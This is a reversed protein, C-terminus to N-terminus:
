CAVMCQQQIGVLPDDMPYQMRHPHQRLHRYYLITLISQDHRHNTRDSGLPAICEHIQACYSWEEILKRIEPCIHFCIQTADRMMKENIMDDHQICFYELTRPHTWQRLTGCSVPTYLDIKNMIHFLDKLNNTVMSSADCWFLNGSDVEGAVQDIIVPKWAYYGKHPKLNFFSPYKSYNFSRFRIHHSPFMDHIIRMTPSDIGMDYVFIETFPIKQVILSSLFRILYQWNDQYAATVITLPPIKFKQLILLRNDVTNGICPIDMLHCIKLHFLSMLESRKKNFLSATSQKLDTIIYIGGENLHCIAHLLINWNNDFEYSSDDIIVDVNGINHFIQDIDDMEKVDARLVAGNWFYKQWVPLAVGKDGYGIELLRVPQDRVGQFLVHYFTTYNHIGKDCGYEKMMECLETTQQHQRKAYFEYIINDLNIDDM